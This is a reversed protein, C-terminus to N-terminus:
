SLFGKLIFILLAAVTGVVLRDLKGRLEGILVEYSFFLVIVKTAIMGLHYSQIQADPLNPVVLAIFLILFDMPSSKFGKTRRTFRLTIFVLFILVIFALHYILKVEAPMWDSLDKESFYVLFPISLYVAVRMVGGSWTRHIIRTVCIAGILALAFWKIYPPSGRALMSTLVLLIPVGFEVSRSSLAIHIRRERIEKLKGKIVKDFYGTRKFKWGSKEPIVFGVLILGSFVLYFALLFWESYFRFIYACTVLAAQLIYIVSVAETHYFGLRVLKHHFHKNDAKFPHRGEHIRELLVTMTDLIPFGILILPLVPSLASHKQTIAISLTIAMFGLLQSGADGMFVVAPHTNFRLFGFSAGVIAVAIVAIASNNNQYALYAICIFSLLSIGGALGDLGDALNIANTVGIIVVLTLAFVLGAPLVINEPLLLGLHNIKLGGFWMVIVAAVIQGGFKIRYDLNAIDDILGLIVIIGSGALIAKVLVDDYAWFLVPIFMGIAMAIGGSRPMPSAHMKRAEPIDVAHFKVALSM